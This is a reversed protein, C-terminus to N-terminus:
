AHAANLQRRIYEDAWSPGAFNSFFGCHGGQAVPTITLAQPQALRELDAGPIIPDDLAAIIRSRVRLSQLADGILAYGNLYSQLDSFGAHKLVLAETMETLSADKLFDARDYLSPWAACKQLLSSRWKHVFYRRYMSKGVELARLTRAPDLVPCVAVVQRIRLAHDPARAAVRLAFNGGLSYGVMSLSKESHQKQVAAVAGVVEDILCSHFLGSNLHHTAGHDRFNLRFVAYGHALLYQGISLLYQSDASGEWGHLLMVLREAGRSPEAYYGGLRVGRGCDLVVSESRECLPRARRLVMARRLPANPLISQIHPNALWISPTFDKKVYAKM